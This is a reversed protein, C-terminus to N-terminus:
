NNRGYKAADLTHKITIEIESSYYGNQINYCPIFYGNLSIGQGEVKRISLNEINITAQEFGTDKLADTDAWVEECCDAYHEFYIETKDSLTLKGWEIKNM